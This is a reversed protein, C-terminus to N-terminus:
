GHRQRLIRAADAEARLKEIELRRRYLAVFLLTFAAVCVWLTTAMRPDLGSDEGGAIVPQPNGTGFYILNLEPDYTPTIWTM